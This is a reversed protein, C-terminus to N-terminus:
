VCCLSCNVTSSPDSERVLCAWEERVLCAWEGEGSVGVGGEGSM